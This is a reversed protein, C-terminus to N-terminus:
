RKVAHAFLSEHSLDGIAEPGSGKSATKGSLTPPLKVVSRTGEAGKQAKELFKAVFEPDSMKEDLQKAFWADPDKGVTSVVKQKENWQVVADYRNHADRVTILDAPDLSGKQFADYFAAEAEDVVKKTHLGHAILKSNHMSQKNQAELVPAMYEALAAKMAAGPDTFWDPGEKPPPAPVRAELEKLRTEFARARDEAIRRADAEERLRYSPVTGEKEKPPEPAPPEPAPPEPAPPEPTLAEHFQQEQLAADGSM